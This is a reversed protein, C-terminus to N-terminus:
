TQQEAEYERLCNVIIDNMALFENAAFHAVWAAVKTRTTGDDWGIGYDAEDLIYGAEHLITWSNSLLNTKPRFLQPHQRVAEFLKRRLPNNAEDGPSLGLDLWPLGDYFRFQFLLLASSGPAWGNGTQTAEYRDWDTSRFRVFYQDEVDLKWEQHQAVAEKLWQKTEAVWDPKCAIIQDIAERHELYIRRAVQAISSEPMINRRLTTAYQRLFARVGETTSNENNAVIEQVIDFVMSYTLPTWYRREEECFPHTGWPTLLVHYKNFASHSVELAKRYRTLQESHESSFVKNEIACLVQQAENVILIDLYGQQGDVVNEWERTVETASWDSSRGDPRVGARLLLHRLFRDGLGHSQRPDLLWALLGSHFAEWGWLDRGRGLRLEGILDLADFENRQEEALSELRELDADADFNNLSMMREARGAAFMKELRELEPPVNRLAGVQAANTTAILSDLRELAAGASELLQPQGAAKEDDTPM